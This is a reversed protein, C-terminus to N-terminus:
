GINILFLIPCIQASDPHKFPCLFSCGSASHHRSFLQIVSLGLWLLLHPYASRPISVLMQISASLILLILYRVLCISDPFSLLRYRASVLLPFPFLPCWVPSLGLLGIDHLPNLFLVSLLCVLVPSHIAIPYESALCIASM